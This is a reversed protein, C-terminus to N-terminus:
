ATGLRVAVVSSGPPIDVPAGNKALKTNETRRGNTLCLQVGIGQQNSVSVATVGAMDVQDGAAHTSGGDPATTTLTLDSLADGVFRFSGLAEHQHLGASWCMAPSSRRQDGHAAEITAGALKPMTATAADVIRSEDTRTMAWVRGIVYLGVGWDKSMRTVNNAIDPWGGAFDDGCIIADETFFRSFFDFNDSWGPDGHTADDFYFGIQESWTDKVVDPAFGQHVVLNPIHHTYKDFEARSLNFGLRRVIWDAPEFTDITHIPVQEERRAAAIVQTSSGFLPGVELFCGSSTNEALSGLFQRGAVTMTAPAPQVQEDDM